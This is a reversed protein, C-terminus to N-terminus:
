GCLLTGCLMLGARWRDMGAGLRRGAGVGPVPQALVALPVALQELSAGAGATRPEM